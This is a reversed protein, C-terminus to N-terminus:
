RDLPVEGALKQLGEVVRERVKQFPESSAWYEAAPRLMSTYASRLAMGIEAYADPDSEFELLIQELESVVSEITNLVRTPSVTRYEPNTGQHIELLTLDARALTKLIHLTPRM